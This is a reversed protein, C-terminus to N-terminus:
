VKRETGRLDVVEKVVVKRNVGMLRRCKKKRVDVPRREALVDLNIDFAKRFGDM